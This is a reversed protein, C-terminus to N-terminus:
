SSMSISENPMEIITEECQKSHECVRMAKNLLSNEDSLLKYPETRSFYFIYVKLLLRYILGSHAFYRMSPRNMSRILEKEFRKHWSRIGKYLPVSVWRLEEDTLGISRCKRVYDILFNRISILYVVSTHRLCHGFESYLDNLKDAIKMLAEFSYCCAPTCVTNGVNEPILSDEDETVCLNEYRSLISIQERIKTIGEYKKKSLESTIKLKETYRLKFSGLVHTSLSTLLAVVFSIIATVIESQYAVFFEKM